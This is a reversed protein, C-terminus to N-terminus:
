SGFVISMAIAKGTSAKTDIQTQIASTVGSLRQHEAQTVTGLTTTAPLSVTGTFTPNATPAPTFGLNAEAVGSALKTNPISGALM